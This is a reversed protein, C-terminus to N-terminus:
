GILWSLSPKTKIRSQKPARWISIIKFEFEIVSL